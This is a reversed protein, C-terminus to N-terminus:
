SVGITMYPLLLFLLTLILMALAMLLAVKAAKKSTGFVVPIPGVMVVGGAEAKGEGSRTAALFAGLMALIIGLAMMAFGLMFVEPDM